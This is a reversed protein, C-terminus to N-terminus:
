YLMDNDTFISKNLDFFLIKLELTTNDDNFYNYVKTELDKDKPYILYMKECKKYKTGYGYFEM